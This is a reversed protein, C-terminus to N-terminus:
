RHVGRKWRLQRAIARAVQRAIEDVNSDIRDAHINVTINNVVSEIRRARRGTHEEVVIRKMIPVVMEEGRKFEAIMKDIMDPIISRGVLQNYVDQATSVVGRLSNQATTSFDEFADSTKDLERRVDGLRKILDAIQGAIVPIFFIVDKLWNVHADRVDEYKKKLNTLEQSLEELKKRYEVQKAMLETYLSRRTEMLDNLKEELTNKQQLWYQYDRELYTIGQMLGIRYDYLENLKDELEAIEEELELREQKLKALEQEREELEWQAEQLEHERQERQHIAELLDWEAKQRDWLARQYDRQAEILRHSADEM